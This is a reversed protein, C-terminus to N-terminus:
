DCKFIADDIAKSYRPSVDTPKTPKQADKIMQDIMDIDCGSSDPDRCYEEIDTASPPKKTAQAFMASVSTIADEFPNSMSVAARTVPPVRHVPLVTQAYGAALACVALCLIAASSGPRQM